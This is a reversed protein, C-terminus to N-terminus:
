WVPRFASRLAPRFPVRINRRTLRLDTQNYADANGSTLTVAQMAFPDFLTAQKESSKDNTKSAASVSPGLLTLGIGLALVLLLVKKRM